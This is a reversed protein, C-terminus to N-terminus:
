KLLAALRKDAKCAAMWRAVNKKTVAKEVSKAGAKVGYNLVLVLMVDAMTLNKGAAFTASGLQQDLKEMAAEFSTAAKKEGAASNKGAFGAACLALVLVPVEVESTCFAIWSDVQASEQFTKGYLLADSRARGLFRCVANTGFVDGEDLRLVPLQGMPGIGDKPADCPVFKVPVGSEQAALMMADKAYGENAYLTFGM